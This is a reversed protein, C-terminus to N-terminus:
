GNAIVEFRYVVEHCADPVLRLVQEDTMQPFLTRAELFADGRVYETGLLRLRRSCGKWWDEIFDQCWHRVQAPSITCRHSSCLAMGSLWHPVCLEFRAGAHCVRVIEHLLHHHAGLHEFCHSSHVESVSGDAFPLDDRELDLQVTAGECRDVSIFGPKPKPGSGLDLKHM